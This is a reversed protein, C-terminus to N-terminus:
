FALRMGKKEEKSGPCLLLALAALVLPHGLGGRLHGTRTRPHIHTCTHVHTHMYAGRTSHLWRGCPRCPTCLHGGSGSGPTWLEEGELSQPESTVCETRESAAAVSNIKLVAEVTILDHEVNEKTRLRNTIM